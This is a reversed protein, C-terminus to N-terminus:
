TRFFFFFLKKLRFLRRQWLTRGTYKEHSGVSIFMSVSPFLFCPLFLVGRLPCTWFYLKTLADTSDTLDTLRALHLEIGQATVFVHKRDCDDKPWLKFWANPNWRADLSEVPGFGKPTRIDIVHRTEPTFAVATNTLIVSSLSQPLWLWQQLCHSRYDYGNSFVIVATTMAMASSLSQQIWLWQQLCHSRYEYGNSFVISYEYGNSFVIVATTMTMASSLSQPLWLWQQLCHSRYEYGNSFVIVAVAFGTMKM